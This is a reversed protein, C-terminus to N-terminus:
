STVAAASAAISADPVGCREHTQPGTQLQQRPLAAGPLELAQVRAAARRGCLCDPSPPANGPLPRPRVIRRSARGRAAAAPPPAAGRARTARPAPFPHMFCRSGSAEGRFSLMQIYIRCFCRIGFAINSFSIGTCVIPDSRTSIYATSYVTPGFLSSPLM